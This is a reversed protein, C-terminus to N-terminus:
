MKKGGPTLTFYFLIIESRMYILTNLFFFSKIQHHTFPERM